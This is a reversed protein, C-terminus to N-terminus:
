NYAGSHCIHKYMILSLWPTTVKHPPYIIVSMVRLRKCSRLLYCNLVTLVSLLSSVTWTVTITSSHNGVEVSVNVERPPYPVTHLFFLTENWQQVLLFASEPRATFGQWAPVVNALVCFLRRVSATGPVSYILFKWENWSMGVITIPFCLTIMSQEPMGCVTCTSRSWEREHVTEKITIHPSSVAQATCSCTRLCSANVRRWM